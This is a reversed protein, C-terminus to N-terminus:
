FLTNAKMHFGGTMKGLEIGHVSYMFWDSHVTDCHYINSSQEILNSNYMLLASILLFISKRHKYCLIEVGWACSNEHKSNFSLHM